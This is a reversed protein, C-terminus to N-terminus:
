PGSGEPPSADRARLLARLVGAQEDTLAAGFQAFDDPTGHENLNDVLALLLHLVRGPDYPAPDGRMNVFDRLFQRLQEYSGTWGM